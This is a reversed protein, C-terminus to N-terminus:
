ALAPALFGSRLVLTLIWFTRSNIDELAFSIAQTLAVITEAPATTNSVDKPRQNM